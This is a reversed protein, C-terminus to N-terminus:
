LMKKRIFRILDKLDGVIMRVTMVESLNSFLILKWRSHRVSGRPFANCPLLDDNYTKPLTKVHRLPTSFVKWSLNYSLGPPKLLKTSFNNRQRWSEKKLPHKCVKESVIQFKQSCM